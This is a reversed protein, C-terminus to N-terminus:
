RGPRRLSSDLQDPDLTTAIVVIPYASISDFMSLLSSLIRREQDSGNRSGLAEVNDIIVVCPSKTKAEEFCQRVRNETEGFFKSFLASGQTLIYSM